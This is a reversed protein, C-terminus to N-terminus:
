FFRRLQLAARVLGIGLSAATSYRGVKAALSKKGFLKYAATLGAALGAALFGAIRWQTKRREIEVRFDGVEEALARRQAEGRRVLEEIKEEFDSM